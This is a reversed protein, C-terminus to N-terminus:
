RPEAAPSTRGAAGRRRRTRASGTSRAPSSRRPTTTSPPSTTATRAARGRHHRHQLRRRAAGAHQGARRRPGGRQPLRAGARHGAALDARTVAWLRRLQMMARTPCSPTPSSPRRRAEQHRQRDAGLEATLRALLPLLKADLRQTLLAPNVLILGALDDPRPRPSGSPWRAAWRCARRRVVRDCSPPSSTSPRASRRRGSTTRHQRQLGALQHRPRAAAPLPRHLGRRGPARGVAAHEDPHRHLRARAPRRHARGPREGPFAFPEAGPMCTPPPATPGPM